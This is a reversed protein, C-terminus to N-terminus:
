DAELSLAAILLALYAQEDVIIEVGNIQMLCRRRLL